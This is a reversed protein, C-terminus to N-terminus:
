KSAKNLLLLLKREKLFKDSPKLLAIATTSLRLLSATTTPVLAPANAGTLVATEITFLAM